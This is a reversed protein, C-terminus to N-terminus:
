EINVWAIIQESHGSWASTHPVPECVAPCRGILHQHHERLLVFLM